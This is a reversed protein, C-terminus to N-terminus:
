MISWGSLMKDDMELFGSLDMDDGPEQVLQQGYQCPPHYYDAQFTMEPDCKIGCNGTAAM